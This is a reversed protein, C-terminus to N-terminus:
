NYRLSMVLNNFASQEIIPEELTRRSEREYNERPTGKNDSVGKSFPVPKKKSEARSKERSEESEILSDEYAEQDAEQRDNM